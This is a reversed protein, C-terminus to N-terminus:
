KQDETLHKKRINLDDRLTNGNEVNNFTKSKSLLQKFILSTQPYSQTATYYFKSQSDFILISGSSKDTRQPVDSIKVSTTTLTEM